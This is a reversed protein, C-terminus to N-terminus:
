SDRPSPSTYLLCSSTHSRKSPAEDINAVGGPATKNSAPTSRLEALEEQEAAHQELREKAEAVERIADECQGRSVQLRCLEALKAKLRQVETNLSHPVGGLLVPPNPELAVPEVLGDARMCICTGPQSVIIASSRKCTTSLSRYKIADDFSDTMVMSGLLVGFLQRASEDAFVMESM